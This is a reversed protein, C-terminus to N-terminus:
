TAIPVQRLREIFRRQPDDPGIQRWVERVLLFAITAFIFIFPGAIAVILRLPRQKEPITAPSLVQVSAMSQMEQLKAVEYGQELVQYVTERIKVKRYLDLYTVGLIPLQSISPFLAEESGATERGPGGRRGTEVHNAASSHGALKDLQRQLEAIRARAQVVQPNQGTYLQDLGKLDSQAAIIQGQLTAAGEVMVKDQADIDLTRNESSFRSLDISASDLNQRAEAVRREYFQRQDAAAKTNLRVLLHDLEEAYANAMDASRKADVDTVEVVVVGSKSDISVDTRKGLKERAKVRYKKDYVTLLNFRDVLRDLMYDSELAKVLLDGGTQTGLLSNVLGAAGGGGGGNAGALGLLMPLGSGSTSNPPLLLTTAKYKPPMLLAISTSVVIGIITWILLSKRNRWVCEIADVVADGRLGLPSEAVSSINTNGPKNTGIRLATFNEETLVNVECEM